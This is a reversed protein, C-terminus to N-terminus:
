RGCRKRHVGWSPCACLSPPSHSLWLGLSPTLFSGLSPPVLHPLSHSVLRPFSRPFTPASPIQASPPCSPLYGLAYRINCSDRSHNFFVFRDTMDVTLTWNPPTPASRLADSATAVVATAACACGLSFLLRRFRKLMGVALRSAKQRAEGGPRRRRFHLQWSSSM